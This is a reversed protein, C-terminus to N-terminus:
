EDMTVGTLIMDLMQEMEGAQKELRDVRLGISDGSSGAAGGEAKEAETRLYVGWEEDGFLYRTFAEREPHLSTPATMWRCVGDPEWLEGPLYNGQAHRYRDGLGWDISRWGTSEQEFATSSVATICGDERVLILVHINDEM